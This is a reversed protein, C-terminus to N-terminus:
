LRCFNNRFKDGGSRACKDHPCGTENGLPTQVADESVSHPATAPSHRPLPSTSVRGPPELRLRGPGGVGRTAPGRSPPSPLRDCAHRERGPDSATTLRRMGFPTAGSISTWRPRQPASRYVGRAPRRPIQRVQPSYPSSLGRHRSADLGTPGLVKNACVRTFKHAGPVRPTGRARPM